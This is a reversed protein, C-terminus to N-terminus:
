FVEESIEVIKGEDNTQFDKGDFAAVLREAYVFGNKEALKDAEPCDLMRKGEFILGERSTYTRM